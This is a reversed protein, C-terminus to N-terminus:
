KESRKDKLKKEKIIFIDDFSLELGDCIKKATNARPSQKGNSVRNFTSETLGCQRAFARKSFGMKLIMQSFEEINRLM